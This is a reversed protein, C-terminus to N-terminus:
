LRPLITPVRKRYDRYQEGFRKQLEEDELHIMIAGTLVSFATLGYCVALGTGISWAFMECLHALYIPHRVRNRIGSTVLSQEDPGASIEPMGILQRIGFQKGSARYLLIGVIFFSLAPIWTWVANYLVIHRWSSTIAALVSWMGFWLPLLVLYPSRSRSRWFEARPHVLLWFSPVASYVICAM